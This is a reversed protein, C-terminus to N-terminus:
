NGNNLGLLTTRVDTVIKDLDRCTFNKNRTLNLMDQIGEKIEEIPVTSRYGCSIVVLDEEESMIRMKTPTYMNHVDFIFKKTRKNFTASFRFEHDYENRCKGEVTDTVANSSIKLTDYLFFERDKTGFSVLDPGHIHETKKGFGRVRALAESILSSYEFFTIKKM